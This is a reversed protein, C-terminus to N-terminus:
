KYILRVANLDPERSDYGTTLDRVDSIKFEGLETPYTNVAGNKWKRLRDFMAIITPKDHCIFYSNNTIHYGYTQYITELQQALNVKKIDLNVIIEAMVAAASVGDKDLVNSGFMFGIAEEFAFLVDNGSDILKKSRSGM